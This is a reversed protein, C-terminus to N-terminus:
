LLELIKKNTAQIDLCELVKGMEKFEIYGSNDSDFKNFIRQMLDERSQINDDIGARHSLQNIFENNM